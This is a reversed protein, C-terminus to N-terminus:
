REKGKRQVSGHRRGQQRIIRQEGLMMMIRHDLM